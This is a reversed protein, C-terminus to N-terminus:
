SERILAFFVGLGLILGSIKELSQEISYTAWLSVLLMVALLVLSLNLPTVLFGPKSLSGELGEDCDEIKLKIDEIKKTSNEIKYKINEIRGQWLYLFWLVPIIILALSRIPSPFVLFPAALILWLWHYRDIFRIIRCFVNNFM